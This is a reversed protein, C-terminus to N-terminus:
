FFGSDNKSIVQHQVNNRLREEEECSSAPSWISCVRGGVSPPGGGMAGVGNLTPTRPSGGSAGGCSPSSPPSVGGNGLGGTGGSLSIPSPTARKISTCLDLPGGGHGLPDHTRSAPRSGAAMSQQVHHNALVQSSFLSCQISCVSEGFLSGM